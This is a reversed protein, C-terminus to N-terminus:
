AGACAGVMLPGDARLGYPPTMYTLRRLTPASPGPISSIAQSRRRFNISTRARCIPCMLRKPAARASRQPQLRSHPQAVEGHRHVRHVAAPDFRELLVALGDNEGVLEAKM